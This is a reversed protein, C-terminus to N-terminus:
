DGDSNDDDEVETDPTDRDYSRCSVYKLMNECIGGYDEYGRRQFFKFAAGNTVHCVYMHFGIGFKEEEEMYYREIARSFFTGVGQRRWEKAVEFNEITPGGKEFDVFQYAVLAKAVVLDSPRHILTFITALEGGKIDYADGLGNLAELRWTSEAQCDAADKLFPSLDERDHPISFFFLPPGYDLQDMLEGTFKDEVERSIAPPLHLAVIGDSNNLDWSWAFHLKQDADGDALPCTFPFDHWKGGAESLVRANAQDITEANKTNTTKKRKKKVRGDNNDDDEDERPPLAANFGSQNLAELVQLVFPKETGVDHNSVIMTRWGARELPNSTCNEAYNWNADNDGFTAEQPTLTPLWGSHRKYKKKDGDGSGSPEDKAHERAVWPLLALAAHTPM